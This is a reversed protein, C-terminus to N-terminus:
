GRPRRRRPRRARLLPAAGAAPRTVRYAFPWPCEDSRDRGDTMRGSSRGPMASRARRLLAAALHSRASSATGAFLVRRATRALPRVLSDLTGPVLRLCARRRDSEPRRRTVLGAQELVGLYRALLSSPMDPLAVLASPSTAGEALVGTILLRAPDAFAAHM